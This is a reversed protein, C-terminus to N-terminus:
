KVETILHQNKNKQKTKVKSWLTCLKPKLVKKSKKKTVIGIVIFEQGDLSPSLIPYKFM